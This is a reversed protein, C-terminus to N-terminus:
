ICQWLAALCIHLDSRKLNRVLHIKSVDKCRTLATYLAGPSFFDPVINVADLTLGQAKNVTLAAAVAIPLQKMTHGGDSFEEYRVICDKKADKLRVMVADDLLETIVGISGNKYASRNTLTIVRMGVALELRGEPGGAVTKGKASYTKRYMFSEVYKKNYYAVQRKTACIYVANKDEVHSLHKNFWDIASISGFRVAECAMIFEEALPSKVVRQNQFIIIKTFGRKVWENSEFAYVGKGYLEEYETQEEKKLVPMAQSFDGVVIVQIQHGTSQEVKTICRMLYDFVDARLLGIEDIILRDINQLDAPITISENVPLIRCPLHFAAHVTRASMKLNDAAVGTPVVICTRKKEKSTLSTYFKKLLRSKGTGAAGQLFVNTGSRLLVIVEDDEPQSSGKAAMYRRHLEGCESYMYEGFFEEESVAFTRETFTSVRKYRGCAEFDVKDLAELDGKHGLLKLRKLARKVSGESNDCDEPLMKSIKTYGYGKVVYLEAIMRDRMAANEQNKRSKAEKNVKDNFGFLEAEEQTLALVKVVKKPTYTFIGDPHQGSHEIHNDVNMIVQNVSDEDLPEQMRAVIEKVDKVAKERGCLIKACNYYIFAFDNRHAGKDWIKGESCRELRKLIFDTTNKIQRIVQPNDQEKGEYTGPLYQNFRPKFCALVDEKCIRVDYNPYLIDGGCGGFFIRDRNNCKPNAGAFLGILTAQLMDRENGDTIEEATCFVACFRPNEETHSYTTYMFVPLIGLAVARKHVTEPTTEGDFNLAFLQQRCWNNSKNGGELIGCRMSEGEVLGKAVDGVYLKESQLMKQIKKIEKKNPKKQYSYHFIMVQVKGHIEKLRRLAM